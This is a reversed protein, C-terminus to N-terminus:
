NDGMDIGAAVTAVAAISAVDVLLMPICCRYNAEAVATKTPWKWKPMPLIAAASRNQTKQALKQSQWSGYPLFM